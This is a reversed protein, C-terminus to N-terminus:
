HDVVWILLMLGQTYMLGLFEAEMFDKRMELPWLLLNPELLNYAFYLYPILLSLVTVLIHTIIKTILNM